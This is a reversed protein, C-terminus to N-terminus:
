NWQRDRGDGYWLRGFPLAESILLDHIGTPSCDENSVCMAVVPLAENHSRILLSRTQQAQIPPELRPLPESWRNSLSFAHM